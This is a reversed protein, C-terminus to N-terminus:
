VPAAHCHVAATADRGGTKRRGGGPCSPRRSTRRASAGYMYGTVFSHGGNGRATADRRGDAPARNEVGPSVTGPTRPRSGTGGEVMVFRSVPVHVPERPLRKGM